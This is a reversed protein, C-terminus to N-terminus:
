YIIDYFLFIYIYIYIYITERYDDTYCRRTPVGPLDVIHVQVDLTCSDHTYIYIYIYMYIYIYVCVYMCVCMYVYM